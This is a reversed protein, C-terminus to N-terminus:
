KGTQAAAASFAAAFDALEAANLDSIAFLSVGDETWHRVNFGQAKEIAPLREGAAGPAVFLNIIHARKKYVIAAVMKGGIADLRGGILAFGEASLDPVPPAADVKGNFWPKVSHRDSSPVDTLHDPELARLHASVIDSLIPSEKDERLVAVFVGSAAIASLGAGLAFGQLWERRSPRIAPRPLAREIRLRLSEPAPYCLQAAFITKQLDRLSSLEAACGTCGEAHVEVARAHKADLEGDLLPHMLDRAEDCNM